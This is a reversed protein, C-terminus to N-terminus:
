VIYSIGSGFNFIGTLQHAKSVLFVVNAGKFCFLVAFAIHEITLQVIQHWKGNTGRWCSKREKKKKESEYQEPSFYFALMLFPKM